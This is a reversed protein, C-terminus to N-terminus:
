RSSGTKDRTARDDPKETHPPPQQPKDAIHPEKADRTPPLESYRQEEVVDIYQHGDLPEGFPSEGPQANRAQRNKRDQGNADRKM